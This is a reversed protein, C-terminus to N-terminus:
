GGTPTRPETTHCLRFGRPDPDSPCSSSTAASAATDMELVVNGRKHGREVFRHAEAVQALPYCRDIVAKLRGQEVLDALLALDEPTWSFNSAGGLVRQRRTVASGLMQLMEWVGFVTLLCRGSPKLARKLRALSCKGVTDFVIDYRAGMEYFNQRTYDIVADAGLSKVLELNRTSTVATVHAGFYRALQVAATGVAGSAGYILVSEGARLQALNRLYVLATLAGNPIAAAETHSVSPPKVALLATQKLCIYDAYAGLGLGTYGFVQQGVDFRTVRTGVAAVEGSLEMGLIRKRPWPFGMVFVLPLWFLPPHDFSRLKPDEASVTAAHIRILLEDARPVPRERQQLQLVDPSGYRTLVMANM